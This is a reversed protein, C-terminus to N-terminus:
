AADSLYQSIFTKFPAMKSGIRLVAGRILKAADRDDTFLEVLANTAHYLPLTSARHKRNFESLHSASGLDLGLSRAKAILASLTEAGKLGFNFGHATVPHMGVAADGLLAFRTSIFKKAYVAILPYAYRESDLKMPGLKGGFRNEIDAAFVTPSMSLVEEAEVSPLTIVASCRNGELPLIALTREYHFCEYAVRGHPNKHVLASVIVTRGFDRTSVPIGMKSRCKSFRGDAAVLLPAELVRTTSLSVVAVAEDTRVSKVECGTFFKINKFHQAQQFAAKRIQDNSIIFGLAGAAKTMPDFNLVFPSFGDLVKAEAIPSINKSPIRSLIGLEKLIKLSGHTLAIKRGDEPPAALLSENEREVLAIKLQLGALSCAFALGTPGGGVIIVDFKETPKKM